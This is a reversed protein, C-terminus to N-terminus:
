LLFISSFLTCLFNDSVKDDLDSEETCGKLPRARNNIRKVYNCVLVYSYSCHYETFKRLIKVFFDNGVM